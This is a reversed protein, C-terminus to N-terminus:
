IKTWLSDFYTVPPRSKDETLVEELHKIHDFEFQQFAGTVAVQHTLRVFLEEGARLVVVKQRARFGSRPTILTQPQGILHIEPLLLVPAPESDEGKKQGKILAGYPQADPSLLELGVLTKKNQSSSMWRICALTWRASEEERVCVLDGTKLDGPLSTSWDICYGGPSADVMTASYTRYHKQAQQISDSDMIKALSHPDMQVVHGPVQGGNALSAKTLTKEPIEQQWLHGQKLKELFPNSTADATPPLVCDQGYILQEFTQEGALFYHCASLGIGLGINKTTRKRTFSRVSTKSFADIIHTLLAPNILTDQDFVVGPKEGYIGQKQLHHVLPQTDIYRTSSGPQERYLQRYLPPRDSDLNTLFLSDREPERHVELLAGWEQLGRYVAELDGKRLQNPKCCSLLLPQLYATTITGSGALEDQVTLETLQQSEALAYLQHLALWSNAEVARYLQFAQLLRAGAIRIARHISECALRAPNITAVREKGQITHVATITYAAGAHTYLSDAMDVMQCARQPMHLPQKLFHRSLSATTALLAPRLAEVIYYRLEPAVRTRNLQSIATRLQEAVQSSSTTPLAQAWSRAAEASLEFFEFKQLDQAPIRLKLMTDTSM